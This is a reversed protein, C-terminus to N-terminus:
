FLGDLNVDPMNHFFEAGAIAGLGNRNGNAAADDLQSYRSLTLKCVSIRPIRTENEVVLM